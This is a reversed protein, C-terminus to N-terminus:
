GGFLGRQAQPGVGLTGAEAFFDGWRGLRQRLEALVAKWDTLSSVSSWLDEILAAYVGTPGRGREGFTCFRGAKIDAVDGEFLEIQLGHWRPFSGPHVEAGPPLHLLLQRQREPLALGLFGRVAKGGMDRVVKARSLVSEQDAAKELSQWIESYSTTLSRM